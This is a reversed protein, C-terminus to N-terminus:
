LGLIKEFRIKNLPKQEFSLINPYEGAKVRDAQSNSSTLIVVPITIGQKKMFDLIGWGDLNPMNLDLFILEPKMEVIACLAKNSDQFDTVELDNKIIKLFRKHVFNVIEQDDILFIKHM